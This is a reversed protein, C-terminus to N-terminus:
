SVPEDGVESGIDVCAGGAVGLDDIAGTKNERRAEDVHHDEGALGSVLVALRKAVALRAAAAPPTVVM